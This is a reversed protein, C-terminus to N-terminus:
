DPREEINGIDLTLCGCRVEDPQHPLPDREQVHLFLGRLLPLSASCGKAVGTEAPDAFARSSPNRSHTGTSIFPNTM